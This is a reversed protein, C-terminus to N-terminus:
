SPPASTFLGSIAGLAGLAAAVASVMVCWAVVVNQRRELEQAATLAAPSRAHQQAVAHKLARTSASRATEPRSIIYGSGRQFLWWPFEIM